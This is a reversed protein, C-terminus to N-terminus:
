WGRIARSLSARDIEAQTPSGKADAEAFQADLKEGEAEASDDALREDIAAILTSRDKGDSEIQRLEKLEDPSLDDLQKEAEAVTGDAIKQLDAM